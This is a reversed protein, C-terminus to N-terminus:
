KGTEGFENKSLVPHRAVELASEVYQPLRLGILATGIGPASRAFQLASQIPDLGACYPSIRPSQETTLANGREVSASSFVHLGYAGAVALVSAKTGQLTQNNKRLADQNSNNFPVQLARLHHEEGGVERALHVIRELPLHAHAKEAALLGEWTALGYVGIKGMAVAEELVTFTKRLSKFFDENNMQIKSREPNHLFYVDIHDLRLNELSQALSKKIFGAAICHRRVAQRLTLLGGSLYMDRIYRDAPRRDAIDEPVFGGKSCVCIAERPIGQTQLEALVRGVLREARMKRYNIATDVVNLGGKIALILSAKYGADTEPTDDGRHTGIGISSIPCGRFKRFHDPRLRQGRADVLGMVQTLWQEAAPASFRGPLYEEAEARKAPVPTVVPVARVRPQVAFLRRRKIREALAIEQLRRGYFPRQAPPPLEEVLKALHVAAPTPKWGLERLQKNDSVSWTQLKGYPSHYDDLGAARLEKGSVRVIDPVIGAAECTARVLRESTWIEDGAVNFAKGVARPHQAVLLLATAVDQVGALRFVRRDDRRLLIPGGDLVRVPMFLSRGYPHHLPHLNRPSPPVPDTRGFVNAPRIVTWPVSYQQLEKECGRKGRLYRETRPADDLSSPELVARDESSIHSTDRSYIDVSSTLVYRGIRGQLVDFLLRINEPVFAINDLVADFEQGALERTLANRDNRDAKVFRVHARARQTPPDLALVTVQHGALAARTVLEAGVFRNGGIILVKM